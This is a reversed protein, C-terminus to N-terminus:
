YKMTSILKTLAISVETIFTVFIKAASARINYFLINGHGFDNMNLIFLAMQLYKHHITDIMAALSFIQTMTVFTDYQADYTFIFIM